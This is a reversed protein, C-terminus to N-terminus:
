RFNNPPTRSPLPAGGVVKNGYNNVEIVIIRRAWGGPRVYRRNVLEAYRRNESFESGKIVMSGNYITGNTTKYYVPTHCEPCRVGLVRRRYALSTNM